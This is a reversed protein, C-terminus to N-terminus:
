TNHFLSFDLPERNRLRREATRVAEEAFRFCRRSLPGRRSSALAAMGERGLRRAMRGVTNRHVGFASAIEVDKALGAQSLTAICAAESGEDAEDYTYIATTGFFVARKSGASFLYLNKSIRRGPAVPPEFLEEQEAAGTRM